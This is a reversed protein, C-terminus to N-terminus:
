VYGFWDSCYRGGDASTLEDTRGLKAVASSPALLSQPSMMRGNGAARTRGSRGRGDAGDTRRDLPHFPEAGLDYVARDHGSPRHVRGAHGVSLGVAPVRVADRVAFDVTCQRDAATGPLQRDRVPDYVPMRFYDGGVAVVRIPRGCIRGS